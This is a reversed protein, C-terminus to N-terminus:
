CARRRRLALGCLALGLLATSSPEPIAEFEFGSIRFNNANGPASSMFLSAADALNSGGQVNIDLSSVNIWTATSSPSTTTLSKSTDSRNVITFVESADAFVFQIRSLQWALSSDLATANIGVIIGELLQIGNNAEGVPFVGGIVGYAGATARSITGNTSKAGFDVGATTNVVGVADFTVTLSTGFALTPLVTGSASFGATSTTGVGSGDIAITATNTSGNSGSGNPGLNDVLLAIAAQSSLSTLALALITAFAPNKLPRM